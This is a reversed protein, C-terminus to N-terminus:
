LGYPWKSWQEFDEAKINCSTIIGQSRIFHEVPRYAILRKDLAVLAFVDIDGKEYAIREKAKRLSYQYAGPMPGEQRPESVSKVQLKRIIKGDLSPILYDFTYKHMARIPVIGQLLLDAEVLLEAASGIRIEDSLSREM